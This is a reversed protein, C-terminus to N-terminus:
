LADFTIAPDNIRAATIMLNGFWDFQRRTDISTSDKLKLNWSGVQMLGETVTM